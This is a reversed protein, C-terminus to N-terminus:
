AVDELFRALADNFARPQELSSLHGARPITVLRSSPIAQAMEESAALPTLGDEEGCLILAPCAIAGLVPRSDQRTMMAGIAGKIAAPSNAEIMSRVGRVTEPQERRTTEGLLKPLMDDAIARAGGTDALSQMRRRAAKAEETDAAAKTDALVLASFRAPARRYLAFALYGGMSLGGIAAQPVGLADLVHEVDMALEDMTPEGPAEASPGDPSRFGRVDPAIVRWSEFADLQPEWMASSLPFAHLLLLPCPHDARSSAPNTERWRITRGGATIENVRHPMRRIM